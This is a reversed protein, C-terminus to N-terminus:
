TECSTIVTHMKEQAASKKPETHKRLDVLKIAACLQITKWIKRQTSTPKVITHFDLATKTQRALVGFSEAIEAFNSQM